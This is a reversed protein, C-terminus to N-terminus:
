GTLAVRTGGPEAAAAMGIVLFRSQLWCWGPRLVGDLRRCLNRAHGPDGLARDPLRDQGSPRV